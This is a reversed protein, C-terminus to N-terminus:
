REALWYFGGFWGCSLIIHTIILVKGHKKYADKFRAFLSMEAEKLTKQPAETEAAANSKPAEAKTNVNANSKNQASQNNNGNFLRVYNRRLKSFDIIPKKNFLFSAPSRANALAASTVFSSKTAHIQLASKTANRFAQIRCQPQQLLLKTLVGSM